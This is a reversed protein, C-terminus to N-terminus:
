VTSMLILGIGEGMLVVLNSGIVLKHFRAIKGWM